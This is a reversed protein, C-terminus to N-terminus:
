KENKRIDRAMKRFVDMSADARRRGTGEKGESSRQLETSKAPSSPQIASGRGSQEMSSILRISENDLGLKAKPFTRRVSKSLRMYEVNGFTRAEDSSLYYAQPKQAPTVSIDITPEEEVKPKSRFLKKIFGVV